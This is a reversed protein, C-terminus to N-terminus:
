RHSRVSHGPVWTAGILTARPFTPVGIENNHLLSIVMDVAAPDIGLLKLGDPTPIVSIEGLWDRASIDYGTDLLITRGASQMVWFNYDM